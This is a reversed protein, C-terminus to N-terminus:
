QSLMDDIIENALLLVKVAYVKSSSAMACQFLSGVVATGLDGMGLEKM